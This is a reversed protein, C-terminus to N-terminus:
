TTRYNFKEIWVSGCFSAKQIIHNEERRHEAFVNFLHFTGTPVPM